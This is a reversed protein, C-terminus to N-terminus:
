GTPRVPHLRAMGTFDAPSKSLPPLYIRAMLRDKYSNRTDGGSFPKGEIPWWWTNSATDKNADAFDLSLRVSGDTDIFDIRHNTTVADIPDVSVQVRNPADYAISTIAAPQNNPSTFAMPKLVGYDENALAADGLTVPAFFAEHLVGVPPEANVTWEVYADDPMYNCPKDAYHQWNHHVTYTGAPLPRATELTIDYGNTPDTDDDYQNVQFLSADTGSLWYHHYDTANRSNWTERHVEAGSALGSVVTATDTPRAADPDTFQEHSLKGWICGEYGPIGAGAALTAELADKQARFDGLSIIPQPSAAGDTIFRIDDPDSPVTTSDAPLWVRRATDITHHWVRLDLSDWIPFAFAGPPTVVDAMDYGGYSDSTDSVLFLLAQRDDWTTNRNRLRRDASRQAEAATAYWPVPEFAGDLMQRPRVIVVVADPGSGKLYEHVTFALKLIPRYTTTNGESRMAETAATASTLSGRVVLESRLLMLEPTPPYTLEPPPVVARIAATPPPTHPPYMTSTPPPGLTATPEATSAAVPVNTPEAAPVATQGIPTAMVEGRAEAPQNEEQLGASEGDGCAVALILLLGM